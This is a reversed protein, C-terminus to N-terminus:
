SAGQDCIIGVLRTALLRNFAELEAEKRQTIITPHQDMTLGGKFQLYLDNLSAEFMVDSLESAPTPDIVIWFKDDSGYRM